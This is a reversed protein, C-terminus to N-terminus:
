AQGGTCWGLVSIEGAYLLRCSFEKLTVVDLETRVICCRTALKCNTVLQDCILSFGICERGPTIMDGPPLSGGLVVWLCILEM